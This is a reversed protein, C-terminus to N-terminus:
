YESNLYKEWFVELDQDNFAADFFWSELHTNEEIGLVELAKTYFKDEKERLVRIEDILELVQEKKDEM